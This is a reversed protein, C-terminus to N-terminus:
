LRAFILLECRFDQLMVPSMVKRSYLFSSHKTFNVFNWSLDTIYYFFIYVCVYTFKPGCAQCLAGLSRHAQQRGYALSIVGPCTRPLKPPLQGASFGGKRCRGGRPLPSSGPRLGTGSPWHSFIGPRCSPVESFARFLLPSSQHAREHALLTTGESEVPVSRQVKGQPQESQFPSCYYTCHKISNQSNDSLIISVPPPRSVGM